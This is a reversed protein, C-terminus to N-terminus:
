ISQSQLEKFLFLDDGIKTPGSLNMLQALVEFSKQNFFQVHTIDRKYFWNPFQSKAPYIKTKIFVKGNSNLLASLRKMVDRPEGLHEIVESLIMFDYKKDWITQDPYYYLDFSDVNHGSQEFFSGLIKTAGCGFDLGRGNTVLHPLIEQSIHLLYNHYGLDQDSNQHSDYRKKEECSSVLSERPVFVLECQGCLYYSRLKDQDFVTSSPHQCLPCTM